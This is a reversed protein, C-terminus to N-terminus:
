CFVGHDLRGILNEVERAGFETDMHALPSENLLSPHECKLWERTAIETEFVEMSMGFLRAVRVVRESEPTDLRGLKKRRHLTAQSIGILRGLEEEPVQLLDQLCHFEAMPFGERLLQVLTKEAGYSDEAEALKLSKEEKKPLFSHVVGSRM